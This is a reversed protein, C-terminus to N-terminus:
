VPLICRLPFRVRTKPTPTPSTNRQRRVRAYIIVLALTLGLLAMNTGIIIFVDVSRVGFTVPAEDPLLATVELATADTTLVATQVTQTGFPNWTGTVLAFGAVLMVLLLVVGLIGLVRRKVLTVEKRSMVHAM